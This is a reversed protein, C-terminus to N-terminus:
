STLASATAVSEHACAAQIALRRAFEDLVGEWGALLAQARARDRVAQLEAEPAMAARVVQDIFRSPQGPPALWGDIGDRIYEGAAAADFAVVGLGAAMGELTANGFTESESPFLMLDASAIHEALAHGRLLGTFRAQPCRAQLARQAPGDGVIVLRTGPLLCRLMEHSRLVLDVNKEPALRGVYLLVRDGPDRVGWSARLGACRHAPDFQRTDVGRGLVEVHTFGHDCLRARLARTPAFTTSGLNHFDRLYRGIWPDLWGCGYYHSYLHFNTRFDTTVPLELSRAALLAARGLPGPTAVHVVQPRARRLRRRIAEQTALGFRLSRYMPIPIGATRWENLDDHRLEGPQRPRILLVQHLRERLHAVARAATLAVGNVEPPYTETVYCIRM